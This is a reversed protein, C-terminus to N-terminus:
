LPIYPCSGGQGAKVAKVAPPFGKFLLLAEYEEAALADCVDGFVRVAVDPYTGARDYQRELGVFVTFPFYETVIDGVALFPANEAVPVGGEVHFVRVLHGEARGASYHQVGTSWTRFVNPCACDLNRVDAVSLIHILVKNDTEGDKVELRRFVVDVGVAEGAASLSGPLPAHHSAAVVAGYERGQFRPVVNELYVAVAGAVRGFTVDAAHVYLNGAVGPEGPPGYGQIYQQGGADDQPKHQRGRGPHLHLALKFKLGEVLLLGVFDVLGPQLKEGVDGVLEQRGQADDQCRGFAKLGLRFFVLVYRLYHRGVGQPERPHDLLYQIEALHFGVVHLELYALVVYGLEYAMFHFREDRQHSLM